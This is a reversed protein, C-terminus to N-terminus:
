KFAARVIKTNKSCVISRISFGLGGTSEAHRSTGILTPYVPGITARPPVHFIKQSLTKLYLLSTWKRNQIVHYFKSSKVMQCKFAPHRKTNGCNNSAKPCINTARFHHIWIEGQKSVRLYSGSPITNNEKIIITVVITYSLWKSKANSTMTHPLMLNPIVTYPLWQRRKSM